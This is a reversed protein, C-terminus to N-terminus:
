HHHHHQNFTVQLQSILQLQDSTFQPPFGSQDIMLLNPDDSKEIGECDDHIIVDDNENTPSSTGSIIQQHQQAMPWHPTAWKTKCISNLGFFNAYQEL